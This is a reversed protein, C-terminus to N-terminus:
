FKASMTLGTSLKELLFVFNSHDSYQWFARSWHGATDFCAGTNVRRVKVFM